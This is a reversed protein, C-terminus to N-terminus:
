TSRPTTGDGTWTLQPGAGAEAEAPGFSWLRDRLLRALFALASALTQGAEPTLREGLENLEYGRIGLVFGRARGGFLSHALGLVQEPAVDHTTFSSDCAPRIERFSFAEEGRSDADAFIVIDHRSAELAHEVNLQYDSDVEVGPIGLREVEAALRPGLGDDLRGPNGYGIVLIRPGADM